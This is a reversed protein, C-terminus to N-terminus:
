AFRSMSCAVHCGDFCLMADTAAAYHCITSLPLFDFAYSLPPLILCRFYRIFSFQLFAYRLPLPLMAFLVIAAFIILPTPAFRLSVAITIACSADFAYHRCDIAVCCAAIVHFILSLPMLLPLPPPPSFLSFCFFFLSLLAAAFCRRRLPLILLMAAYYGPPLLLIAYHSLM